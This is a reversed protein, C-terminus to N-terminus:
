MICGNCCLPPCECSRKCVSPYPVNCNANMWLYDKGNYMALICTLAPDGIIGGNWFNQLWQVPTNDIFTVNALRTGIQSPPLM